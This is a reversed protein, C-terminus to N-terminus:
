ISTQSDIPWRFGLKPTRFNHKPAEVAIGSPQRHSAECNPSPYGDVAKPGEVLTEVQVPRDGKLDRFLLSPQTQSKVKASALPKCNNRSSPLTARCPTLCVELLSWHPPSWPFTWCDGAEPVPREECGETHTRAQLSYNLVLNQPGSM